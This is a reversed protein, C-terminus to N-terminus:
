ASRSAVGFNSERGDEFGQFVCPSGAVYGLFATLLPSELSASGSLILTHKFIVDQDQIFVAVGEAVDMGVEPGVTWERWEKASRCWNRYGDQGIMWRIGTKHEHIKYPVFAGLQCGPFVGAIKCYQSLGVKEVVRGDVLWVNGAGFIRLQQASWNPIPPVSKLYAGFSAYGLAKGFGLEYLRKAQAIRVAENTPMLRHEIVAQAADHDIEGKGIQRVIEVIQDKDAPRFSPSKQKQQEVTEGKGGAPVGGSARSVM